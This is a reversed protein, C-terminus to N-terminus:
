YIWSHRSFHLHMNPIIRISTFPCCFGFWFFSESKFNLSMINPRFYYAWSDIFHWYVHSVLWFVSKISNVSIQLAHWETSLCLCPCCAAIRGVKILFQLEGFDFCKKAGASRPITTVNDKFFWLFLMLHLSRM